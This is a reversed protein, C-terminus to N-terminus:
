RAGPAAAFYRLSSRKLFGADLQAGYIWFGRDVRMLIEIKTIFYNAKKIEM